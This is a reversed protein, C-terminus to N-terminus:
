LNLLEELDEEDQDRVVKNVGTPTISTTVIPQTLSHGTPGSLGLSPTSGRYSSSNSVSSGVGGVSSGGVSSTDSDMLNAVESGGTLSSFDDFDADGQFM